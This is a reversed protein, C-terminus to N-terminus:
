SCFLLLMQPGEQDFVSFVRHTTIQIKHLCKMSLYSSLLLSLEFANEHLFDRYDGESFTM